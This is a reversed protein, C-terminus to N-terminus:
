CCIDEEIARAMNKQSPIEGQVQLKSIRVRRDYDAKGEVWVCGARLECVEIGLKETFAPTSIGTRM